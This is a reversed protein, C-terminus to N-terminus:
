LTREGTFFQGLRKGIQQQGYKSRHKEDFLSYGAGDCLIEVDSNESAFQRLADRCNQSSVNTIYPLIIYLKFPNTLKTLQSKAGAWMVGLYTKIDAISNGLTIDREAGQMILCDCGGANNILTVGAPFVTGTLDGWHDAAAEYIGVGNVGTQIFRITSNPYKSLYYNALDPKYTAGQAGLPDALKIWASGDWSQANASSVVTYAATNDFGVDNSQSGFTGIILSGGM